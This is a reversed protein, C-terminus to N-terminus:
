QLPEGLFFVCRGEWVMGVMFGGGWSFVTDRVLVPAGWDLLVGVLGGGPGLVRRLVRRGLVLFVMASVPVPKRGLVLIVMARVPVPEGRGLVM